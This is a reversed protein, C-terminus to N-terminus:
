HDSRIWRFLERIKPPQGTRLIGIRFIRGCFWLMGLNTAILLVTTGILDFMPTDAAARNMMIFPTYIPVWSLFTALPGNPDKPIFVMTLLPVMMIMMMPGMLNQAEKLTNCVSGMALFISAYLFYGLVFYMAFSLMLGGSSVVELLRTAIEAEPGSSYWLIGLMSLIWAIVLTLGIGAIGLLKGMMLEWPTVSSLLVEIIRNSKEEITNNLLMSAVQMIAIWLFYVFGIPAYQRIKDAMSVEEEGVDKRPDLSTLPVSASQVKRVTESDVGLRQFERQHLERDLARELSKRLDSDALNTAWFQVQPGSSKWFSTEGGSALIDAPIEVLAFLAEQDEGISLIEDGKLWPALADALERGTLSSDVGAPLSVRRFKLRPEEFEPADEKLMGAMAALATKVGGSAIFQDVIEPNREAFKAVLDELNVAPLHEWQPGEKGDPMQLHKRGYASLEEIVGRQHARELEQDIISDLEGTRDLLIFNRTPTANKELFRPVQVAIVLLIPLALIGIWFGKTRANDAYERAAVLLANRM